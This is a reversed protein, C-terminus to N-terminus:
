TSGAANQGEAQTVTEPDMNLLELVDIMGMDSANMMSDSPLKSSFNIKDMDITMDFPLSTVSAQSDGDIATARHFAELLSSPSPNNGGTTTTNDFPYTIPIDNPPENGSLSVDVDATDIDMGELDLEIPRDASTGLLPDLGMHITQITPGEDPLMSLDIEAPRTSAVLAAM